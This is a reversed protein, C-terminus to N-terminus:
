TANAVAAGRPLPIRRVSLIEARYASGERAMMFDIQEDGEITM